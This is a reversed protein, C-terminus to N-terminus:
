SVSEQVAEAPPPADPVQGLDKLGALEAQSLRHGGMLEPNLHEIAKRGPKLSAIGDGSLLGLLGMVGSFILIVQAIVDLGRQHWLVEAISPRFAAPWEFRVPLVFWGLFFSIGLVLAWILPRPLTTIEDFTIEGVIAFAYVFLVTVLGAGVSLEMVAVEAAGLSYLLAAVLASTLALWITVNMLRGARMVRFACYIAAVSLLIQSM